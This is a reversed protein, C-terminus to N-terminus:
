CEEMYKLSCIKNDVDTIFLFNNNNIQTYIYNKILKNEKKTIKNKKNKLNIDYKKIEESLNIDNIVTIINNDYLSIVYKKCKNNKNLDSYIYKYKGDNSNSKAFGSNIDDIIIKMAKKTNNSVQKKNLRIKRSLILREITRNLAHKSVNYPRM